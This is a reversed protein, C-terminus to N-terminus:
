ITETYNQESEKRARESAEDMIKAFQFKNFQERCVDIFHHPVSAYGKPKKRISSIENQLLQLEYGKGDWKEPNSSIHKWKAVLNERRQEPTLENFDKGMLDYISLVSVRQQSKSTRKYM